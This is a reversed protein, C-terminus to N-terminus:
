LILMPLVIKGVLVIFVLIDMVLQANNNKDGSVIAEQIVVDLRSCTDSYRVLVARDTISFEDIRSMIIGHAVLYAEKAEAYLPILAPLDMVLKAVDGNKQERMIDVKDKVTCIRNNVKILQKVEKTNFVDLNVVIVEVVSKHGVYTTIGAASIVSVNKITNACGSVFFCLVCIFALIFKKMIKEM